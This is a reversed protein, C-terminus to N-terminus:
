IKLDKLLGCKAICQVVFINETNGIINYMLTDMRFGKVMLRLTIIFGSFYGAGNTAQPLYRVGWLKILMKSMNQLITTFM